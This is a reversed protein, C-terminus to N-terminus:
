FSGNPMKLSLTFYPLNITCPFFRKFNGAYSLRTHSLIGAIDATDMSATVPINPETNDIQM